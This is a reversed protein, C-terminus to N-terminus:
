KVDYMIISYWDTTLIKNNYKITFREQKKNYTVTAMEGYIKQFYKEAYKKARNYDSFLAINEGNNTDYFRFFSYVKM